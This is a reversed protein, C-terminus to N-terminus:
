KELWAKVDKPMEPISYAGFHATKVMHEVFDLMAKFDKCDNVSNKTVYVAYPHSEHGKSKYKFMRYVTKSGDKLLVNNEEKKDVAWKLPKVEAESVAGIVYEKFTTMENEM